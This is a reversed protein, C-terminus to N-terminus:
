SLDSDLDVSAGKSRKIGSRPIQISVSQQKLHGNFVLCIRHMSSRKHLVTLKKMPEPTFGSHLLELTM